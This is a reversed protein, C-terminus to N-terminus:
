QEDDHFQHIAEMMAEASEYREVRGAAVDALAAQVRAVYAEHRDDLWEEFLAESMVVYGPGQDVTVRVPGDALLPDLATLGRKAVEEARITHWHPADDSRDGEDPRPEVTAAHVSSM